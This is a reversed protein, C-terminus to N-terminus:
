SQHPTSSNTLPTADVRMASLDFRKKSCSKRFKYCNKADSSNLVDMGEGSYLLTGALEPGYLTIQYIYWDILQGSDAKILLEFVLFNLLIRNILNM